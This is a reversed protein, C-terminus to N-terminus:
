GHSEFPQHSSVYQGYPLLILDQYKKIGLLIYKEKLHNNLHLMMQAHNYAMVTGFLFNDESREWREWMM